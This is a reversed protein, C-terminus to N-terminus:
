KLVNNFNTLINEYPSYELRFEECSFINTMLEGTM